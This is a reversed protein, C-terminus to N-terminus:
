LDVSQENSHELMHHDAEKVTYFEALFTPVDYTVLGLRNIPSRFFIIGLYEDGM